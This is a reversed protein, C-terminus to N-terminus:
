APALVGLWLDSDPFEDLFDHSLNPCYRGLGVAGVRTASLEATRGIGSALM